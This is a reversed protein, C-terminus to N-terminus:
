DLLSDIPAQSFNSAIKFRELADVLAHHQSLTMGKLKAILTDRKVSYYEYETGLTDEADAILGDMSHTDFFTSIAINLLFAKEATSFLGKIEHRSIDLLSYYRELSKRIGENLSGEDRARAAQKLKDPLAILFRKEKRNEM